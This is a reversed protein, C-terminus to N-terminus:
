QPSIKIRCIWQPHNAETLLYDGPPLDFVGASREKRMRSKIEKVRGGSQRELLLTIENVNSRNNIMLFFQGKQWIVEPPDFGGPRLTIVHSQIRTAPSKSQVAIPEPIKAPTSAEGIVQTKLRARVGLVIMSLGVIAVVLLALRVRMNGFTNPFGISM